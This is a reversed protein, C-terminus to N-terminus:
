VALSIRVGRLSKMAPYLRGLDTFAQLDFRLTANFDLRNPATPTGTDLHSASAWNGNLQLGTSNRALGFTGTVRHRPQATGFGAGGDLLDVEPLGRRML